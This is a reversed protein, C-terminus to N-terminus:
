FPLTLVAMFTKSLPYKNPYKLFEVHGDMYLVNSGGPVHNSWRINDGPGYQDFYVTIESQSMATAAPNNIDTIMFREVGERLFYLTRTQGAATDEYSMDSLMVDLNGNGVWESEAQALFNSVAAVFAGNLNSMANDMNAQAPDICVVRDSITWPIYLYCYDDIRCPCIPQGPDGDGDGTSDCSWRGEEVKWGQMNGMSPCLLVNIDTLYEPYISKGNPSFAGVTRECAGTAADNAVGDEVQMPPYKGGRSENAYMKFVLGVQKLNNACSARRASERARALAPLLIAALIGIIAIVVLLEILTFGKHLYRTSM